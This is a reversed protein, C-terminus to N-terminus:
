VHRQRRRFLPRMRAGETGDSEAWLLAISNNPTNHELVLPLGCAGFGMKVNDGGVRTHETEISADYYKDVLALFEPHRENDLPLDEPLVTGYTFEVKGLWRLSPVEEGARRGLREVTEKAAATAVYHHVSVVADDEFYTPTMNASAERFRLLKGKWVGDAKEQLLTKGSGIFDDLLFVFSFRAAPNGTRKKLNLLLDDWKERNPQTVAVVQENNVLGANARRFADIRAGESLAMFLSENHLRQYLERAEPHAWVSYSPVGLRESVAARLRRQVHHPYTLEVLRQMEAPGVYVLHRRVFDYACAREGPEFQQLWNALNGIFRVGALYDPYSDYKVRSMLQLWHFEERSRDGDWHMIESLLTLALGENM